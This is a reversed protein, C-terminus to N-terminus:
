AHSDRFREAARKSPWFCSVNDRAYLEISGDRYLYYAADASIYWGRGLEDKGVRWRM